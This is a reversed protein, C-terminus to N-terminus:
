ALIQWPIDNKLTSFFKLKSDIYVHFVDWAGVCPIEYNELFGCVEAEWEADASPLYVFRDYLKAVLVPCIKNFFKNAASVSVGLLDSLTSYTCGTTFRYLTMALLRDPPTPFPKLNTPSMVIDDHIENLVFNFTERNVRIKSKFSEDKKHNYVDEWWLKATDRCKDKAREKREKENNAISAVATVCASSDEDGEM